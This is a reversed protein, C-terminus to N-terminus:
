DDDHQPATTKLSTFEVKFGRDELAKKTRHCFGILTEARRQKWPTGGISVLGEDITWPGEPTSSVPLLHKGKVTLKVKGGSYFRARDEKEVLDVWSLQAEDKAEVRLEYRRLVYQYMRALNTKSSHGVTTLWRSSVGPMDGVKSYNLATETLQVGDVKVNRSEARPVLSNKQLLFSMSSMPDNRPFWGKDSLVPDPGVRRVENNLPEAPTSHKLTTLIKSVTPTVVHVRKANEEVQKRQQEAVGRNDVVLPVKTILRYRKGIVYLGLSRATKEIAEPPKGLLQSLDNM